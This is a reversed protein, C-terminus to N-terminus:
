RPGRGDGPAESTSELVANRWFGHDSDEVVRYGRENLLGLMEQPSHVFVRFELRQLRLFLNFIRMAARVWAKDQPFTLAILRPRLSAAAELMRDAWPYCCVVRHLVVVDVPPLTDAEDVFDGVRYEIRDSLGMEDALSDAAEQWGASIEINTARAAGAQLLAAELTGLGGGVELVAAGDVGRAVLADVLAQATGDLGKRRFRRARRAAMRRRFLRRYDTQYCCSAM